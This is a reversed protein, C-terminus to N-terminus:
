EKAQRIAEEFLYLRIASSLNDHDRKGDIEAILQAISKKRAEARRALEDWFPQELSISTRHGNISVSRKEVKSTERKRVALGRRGAFRIAPGRQTM